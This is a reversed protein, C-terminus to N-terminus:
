IKEIKDIMKNDGTFLGILYCPTRAGRVDKYTEEVEWHYPSLGRNISDMIKYCKEKYIQKRKEISQKEIDLYLNALQVNYAKISNIHMFLDDFLKMSMQSKVIENNHLEKPIFWKIIRCSYFDNETYIYYNDDRELDYIIKM